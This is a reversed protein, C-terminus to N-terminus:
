RLFRKLNAIYLAKPRYGMISGLKKGNHDLIVACPVGGGAGLDRRLKENYYRQLKPIKEKRPFNIYVIELQNAIKRFDASSLVNKELMRCPGCWEPATFLVFIKKRTPRAKLVAHELTINWNKGNRKWGTTRPIVTRVAPQPSRVNNVARSQPRPPALLNRMHNRTSGTRAASIDAQTIKAGAKYLLDIMAKWDASAAYYMATKGKEDKLNVNEGREICTRLDQLSGRKVAQIVPPVAQKKQPIDSKKVAKRVVRKRPIFKKVKKQPRPAAPIPSIKTPLTESVAATNKEASTVSQTKKGAHVVPGRSHHTQELNQIFIETNETKRKM